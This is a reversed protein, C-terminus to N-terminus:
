FNSAPSRLDLGNLARAIHRSERVQRKFSKEKADSSLPLSGTRAPSSLSASSSRATPKSARSHSSHTFPFLILQSQQSQGPLHAELDLLGSARKIGFMLAVLPVVVPILPLWFFATLAGVVLVVALGTLNFKKM